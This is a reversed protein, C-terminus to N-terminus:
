IDERKLASLQLEFLVCRCSLLFTTSSNFLSLVCSWWKSMEHNAFNGSCVPTMKRLSVCLICQASSLDNYRACASFNDGDITRQYNEIVKNHSYVRQKFLPADFKSPCFRARAHTQTGAIGHKCVAGTGGSFIVGDHDRSLEHSFTLNTSLTKLLFLIKLMGQSSYLYSRVAVRLGQSVTPSASCM